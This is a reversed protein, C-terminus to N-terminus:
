PKWHHEAALEKARAADEFTVPEDSIFVAEYPILESDSTIKWANGHSYESFERATNNWFFRIWGEVISVDRASLLNFTPEQLPLIRQSSHEYVRRASIKIQKNAIMEAQLRPFDVPCPGFPLKRYPMGTIPSGHVGYSEFDSFFAIKLLKVRSYTPDDLCANSVYLLLEKFRSDRDAIPFDFHLNAPDAFFRSDRDMM